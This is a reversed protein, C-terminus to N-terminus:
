LGPTLEAELLFSYWSNEQPTLSRSAHLDSMKAAMQSGMTLFIHSGRRRMIRYAKM